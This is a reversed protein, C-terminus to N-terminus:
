KWSGYVFRKDDFCTWIAAINVIKASTTYENRHVLQEISTTTVILGIKEFHKSKVSCTQTCRTFRMRTCLQSKMYSNITPKPLTYIYLVNPCALFWLYWMLSWQNRTKDTQLQHSLSIFFLKCCEYYWWCSERNYVYL